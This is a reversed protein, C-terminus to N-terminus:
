AIHGEYKRMWIELALPNFIDRFWIRGRNAPQKCYQEYVALLNKRNILEHKFILADESFFGLIKEKLEHKIWESQPNIFGQKDNRWAIEPPLYPAVAQRLIYKTWGDKIKYKAPLNIFFGVLRYDLFPVRIERSWAMSMRDEYHTLVPISFRELDAVQRDRLSMGKQMAVQQPRFGELATGKVDVASSALYPLYRKAEALTFQNIITGNRLFSSALRVAEWFRGRRVLDQLYFGSYKRYGCLLEDAGQGSLIVKVNSEAAKEMLLYHAVNSFSGVPGDNFWCVEELLEIARQPELRLNVKQVPRGLHRSMIDIYHSEDYRRDESVASLLTVNDIKENVAAAISSSDIGGSLLVGVPVDSRLRLRVADFFLDRAQIVLEKEPLDRTTEGPLNWFKHFALSLEERNLDIEAYYGPPVKLIGEFYTRDSTEALSQLIYEGIIQTNLAFKHNAAKLITKIESAFYLSQRDLFYYLPKIGFRDRALVLRSSELDLWAFAWMGNLRHLAEKVGWHHLATLLVETDSQSFFSHGFGELVSRIEKYNYIEGNFVIIGKDRYAMPQNGSESLDIISLRQHTLALQWNGAQGEWKGSADPGRHSQVLQAQELLFNYQQGSNGLIGAIGCM